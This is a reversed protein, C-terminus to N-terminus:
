KRSHSSKRRRGKLPLQQQQEAATFDLVELIRYHPTGDEAEPPTIELRVRYRDNLFSAGRRVADRAISTQRVDAYIPKRKYLFRWNPAKSDFVPGYSYLVATVVKPAKGEVLEEVAVGGRDSCSAIIADVEERKFVAIPNDDRRFEISKAEKSGNVPALVGEIADLVENNQSLQLVDNGIHITNGDGITLDGEVKLIVTGPSDKIKQVSEVKRGGRWKLYGFVGTAAVGTATAIVGIDKLLEHANKVLSPDDLLTKAYEVATQIVEFNINFCKHEFDSAVVLKMASRDKNLEANAAKVLKGFALLAPGLAEVDMSHEDADEGFYAVQFRERSVEGSGSSAM